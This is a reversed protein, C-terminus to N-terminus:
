RGNEQFKWIAYELVIAIFFMKTESWELYFMDRLHKCTLIKNYTENLFLKM